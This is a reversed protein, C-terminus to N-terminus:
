ILIKIKTSSGTSSINQLTIKHLQRDSADCLPPSLRIHIFRRHFSVSFFLFEYLCSMCSVYLTLNFRTRTVTTATYFCYTNNIRFKHRYSQNGLICLAHATNDDTAQGSTCPKEVNDKWHCSKRPPPIMSGLIHTKIKDVAKESVSRMKLLVSRSLEFHINTNRYLVRWEQWIIIYSSNGWCIKSFIWYNFKMFIRKTPSSNNWASPRVSPCVYVASSLTAKRLKALTGLLTHLQPISKNQEPHIGTAHKQLCLLSSKPEV